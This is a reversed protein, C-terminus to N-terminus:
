WLTLKEGKDKLYAKKKVGKGAHLMKYPNQLVVNRGGKDKEKRRTKLDVKRGWVHSNDM